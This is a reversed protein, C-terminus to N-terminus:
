KLGRNKIYNILIEPEIRLFECIILLDKPYVKGQSISLHRIKQYLNQYKIGIAEAIEKKFLPVLQLEYNDM